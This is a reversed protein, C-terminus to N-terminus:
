GTAERRASGLNAMAENYWSGNKAIFRRVQPRNAIMDAFYAEWARMQDKPMNERQSLVHSIFDAMVASVATAEESEKDEPLELLKRRDSNDALWQGVAIIQAGLSQVASARIARRAWTVQSSVLVLAGLAALAGLMAAVAEVAAWNISM